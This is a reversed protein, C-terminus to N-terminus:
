EVEVYIETFWKAPNLERMPDSLYTELMSGGEVMELNNDAIYKMTTEWAEKLNSYNGKLVTKVASFSELKGTLIEADDTVIKSNTPVCTSFIAADNEEDWKHYLIFPPGAMTVNNTM